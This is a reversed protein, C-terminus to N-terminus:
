KDGLYQRLAENIIDTISRRSKYAAERLAALMGDEIFLTTRTKTIGSAPRGPRRRGDAPAASPASRRGATSGVLQQMKEINRARNKAAEERNQTQERRAEMAASEETIRSFNKTKGM